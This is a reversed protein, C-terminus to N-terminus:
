RLVEDDEVIAIFGRVFQESGRKTGM